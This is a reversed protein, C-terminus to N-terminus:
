VLASEPLPSGDPMHTPKSKQVSDRLQMEDYWRQVHPASDPIPMELAHGFDVVTITTIDAVSFKDGAIFKNNALQENFKKHFREVRLKGREILGPIQPVPERHGPLGRNVFNPHSNRFIEAHGILGEDYARREWGIIMAKELATTGLLSPEPHLTELYVWIALGEGIQTGDELELMPVMYHPYYEEFSNKLKIESTICEEREIEIGKEILFMRVRRCNPAFDWEYLKM